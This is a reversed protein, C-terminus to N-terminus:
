QSTFVTTGCYPCEVVGRGALELRAGCNPCTSNTLLDAAERAYLVGEDWDIYGSFLRKGVLDRVDQRITALPANLELAAERLSVKGATEVMNLLARQRAVNAMEAGERRARMLIFGGGGIFILAVPTILILMFLLGSLRLHGEQMNAIGWLLACGFFLVGLAILTSGLILGTTNSSRM